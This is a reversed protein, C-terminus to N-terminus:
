DETDRFTRWGDIMSSITSVRGMIDDRVAFYIHIVTFLMLVWMGDHHLTRLFMSSGALSFMWGFARFEWSNMGMQEGYLALGSAVMFFSGLTFMGWMSAQALPNHGVWKHTKRDIFLYYLVVSYLEKWWSLKWVPLYFILRAHKDGVIAWYSRWALGIAFLWGFIFHWERIHGMVFLKSTDGAVSPPPSAIFYGTIALGFILIATSWHWIRVAAPYIFFSTLHRVPETGIADKAKALHPHLPPPAVTETAM